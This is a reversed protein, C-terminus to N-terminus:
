RGNRSNASRTRWGEFKMKMTDIQGRLSVKSEQARAKARVVNMYQPSARADRRQLVEPLRKKHESFFQNDAKIMLKKEVVSLGETFLVLDREAEALRINLSELEAYFDEDVEM